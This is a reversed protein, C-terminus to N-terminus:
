QSSANLPTTMLIDNSEKTSPAISYPINIRKAPFYIRFITGVGEESDVEINGGSQQIIGYSISLGLGTGKKGKTTFFPEFLQFQTQDSMGIGSDHIEVVVESGNNQTKITLIGGNPMAEIANTIMNMLVQGIQSPDVYITMLNEDLMLKLQINKPIIREIMASMTSISDNLNIQKPHLDQKKAFKLLQKTLSAASKTASAITAIDAYLPDDPQLKTLVLDCHSLIVTLMNNFDHAIGGALRGIAKMKQGQHLKQELASSETIDASTGQVGSINGESDTIPIAKLRSIVERGDKTVFSGILNSINKGKLVENFEHILNDISSPKLFESFHKGKQESQTYGTLIEAGPNVYTIKGEYDLRWIINQSTKVLDRYKNEKDIIERQPVM